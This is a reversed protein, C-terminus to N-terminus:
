SYHSQFFTTDTGKEVLGGEAEHDAIATTLCEKLITTTDSKHRKPFAWEILLHLRWKTKALELVETWQLPYFQLQTPRVSSGHPMQSHRKARTHSDSENDSVTSDADSQIDEAESDTADVDDDSEM